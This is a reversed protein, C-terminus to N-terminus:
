CTHMLVLDCVSPLPLGSMLSYKLLLHMAHIQCVCFPMDCVSCSRSSLLYRLLLCLKQLMPPDQM